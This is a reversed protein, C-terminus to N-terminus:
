LLCLHLSWLDSIAFISCICKKPRKVGFDVKPNWFWKKLMEVMKLVKASKQEFHSLSAERPSIFCLGPANQGFIVKQPWIQEFTYFHQFHHRKRNEVGFTSKQENEWNGCKSLGCAFFLSFGQRINLSKPALIVFFENQSWKLLIELTKANWFACVVM